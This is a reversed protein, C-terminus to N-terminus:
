RTILPRDPTRLAPSPPDDPMEHSRDVETRPAITHLRQANRPVRASRRAERTAARDLEPTELTEGGNTVAAQSIVIPAPAPIREGEASVVVGGALPAVSSAEPLVTASGAPTRVTTTADNRSTGTFADGSSTGSISTGATTGAERNRSSGTFADGTSTGRISTGGTSGPAPLGSATASPPTATRAETEAKIEAARQRARAVTANVDADDAADGDDGDDDADPPIADPPIPQELTPQGTGPAATVDPPRISREGAPSGAMNSPSTTVSASTSPTTPPTATGEKVTAASGQTGTAHVPVARLTSSTRAQAHATGAALALAVAGALIAPSLKRM